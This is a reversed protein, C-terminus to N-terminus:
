RAAALGSSLCLEPWGQAGAEGVEQIQPWVGGGAGGSHTWSTSRSSEWPHQLLLVPARGLASNAPWSSLLNTISVDQRSVARDWM